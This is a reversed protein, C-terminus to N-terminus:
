VPEFSLFNLSSPPKPDDVAEDASFSGPCRETLRRRYYAFRVLVFAFNDVKVADAYVMIGLFNSLRMM